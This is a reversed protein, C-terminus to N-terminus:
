SVAFSNPLDSVRDLQCMYPIGRQFEIPYIAYLIVAYFLM